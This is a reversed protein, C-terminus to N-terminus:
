FNQKNRWEFYANGYIAKMVEEYVYHDFDDDEYKDNAMQHVGEIVMKVLKSFDPHELPRPPLANQRKRREIEAQLDADSIASLNSKTM